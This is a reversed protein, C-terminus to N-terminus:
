SLSYRMLCAPSDAARSRRMQCRTSFTTQATTLGNTRRAPGCNLRPRQHGVRHSSSHAPAVPPLAVLADGALAAAVQDHCNVLATTTAASMVVVSMVVVSMVVASMVVVSMVVVSMVVANPEVPAPPMAILDPVTVASSVIVAHRAVILRHGTMASSGGALLVIAVRGIVVPGIVAPGIVAISVPVIQATSAIQGPRPATVALAAITVCQDTTVCQDATAASAEIRRAVIQRDVIQRAVAIGVATPRVGIQRHAIATVVAPREARRAEIPGVALPPVRATMTGARAGNVTTARRDATAVLARRRVRARRDVITVPSRADVLLVALAPAIEVPVPMESLVAQPAPGTMETSVHGTMLVAGVSDAPQRDLRATVTRGVRALTTVAATAPIAAIKRGEMAVVLSVASPRSDVRGARVVQAASVAARARPMVTLRVRGMPVTARRVTPRTAIATRVLRAIARHVVQDARVRDVQDLEVPAAATPVLVAVRRAVRAAALAVPDELIPAAVLAAVLIVAAAQGWPVAVAPVVQTEQEALLAAPVVLVLHLCKFEL